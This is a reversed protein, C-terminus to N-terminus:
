YFYLGYIYGLKKWAIYHVQVARISMVLAKAAKITVALAEAASITM